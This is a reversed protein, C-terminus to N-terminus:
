FLTLKDDEDFLNLQPREHFPVAGLKGSMAATAKNDVYDFKQHSGDPMRRGYGVALTSQYAKDQVVSTSSM